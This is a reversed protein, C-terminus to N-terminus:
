CPRKPIDSEAARAVFALADRAADFAGPALRYYTFRGQAETLV